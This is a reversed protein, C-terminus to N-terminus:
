FWVKSVKGEITDKHKTSGPEVESFAFVLSEGELTLNLEIVNPFINFVKENQNDEFKDFCFLGVSSIIPM